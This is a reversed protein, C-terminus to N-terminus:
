AATLRVPHLGLRSIQPFSVFGILSVKTLSHLPEIQITNKRDGGGHRHVIGTTHISFRGSPLLQDPNDTHAPVILGDKSNLEFSGGKPRPDRDVIVVLSGDSSTELRLFRYTSNGQKILVRATSM